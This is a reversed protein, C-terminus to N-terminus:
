PLPWGGKLPIGNGGSTDAIENKRDSGVARSWLNLTPVYISRYISLKAKINLERKVVVSQYLTRMAAAAAGIWRDIEPERRGDSTFLVGLYKFEEVQPLFKDRVRLPCEVRKRSLVMAESKSTSMRMGVAECEAAFQELALQLGDGSSALLVVDESFLLSSIRLGGLHFGEAVLSRRSIRDIFIIFLIPSLPCGQRLGDGVLFSDSKNGAISVLSKCCNYLSQIAWLLPGSVGYEWLVGRLVRDFAKELDVFCMCVPPASEWASELLGSLIFLQDQTGHGPRFGCQEEQIRPEVLPHVRRELVRAYVKGPLSPLTIGRYNSCVRHFYCPLPRFM